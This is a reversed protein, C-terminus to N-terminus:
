DVTSGNAPSVITITLAGVGPNSPQADLWNPVGDSDWDSGIGAQFFGVTEIGMTATFNSQGASGIIHLTWPYFPDGLVPTRYIEYNATSVANTIEMQLQNTGSLTIKLVPEPISPALVVATTVVGWIATLCLAFSHNKM